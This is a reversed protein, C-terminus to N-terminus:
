RKHGSMEISQDVLSKMRDSTQYSGHKFQTLLTWFMKLGRLPTQDPAGDIYQRLIAYQPDDQSVIADTGMVKGGYHMIMTYAIGAHSVLKQGFIENIRAIDSVLGAAYFADVVKEIMGM